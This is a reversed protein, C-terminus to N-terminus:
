SVDSLSPAARVYRGLHCLREDGQLGIILAASPLVGGDFYHVIVTNQFQQERRPLRQGCGDSWWAYDLPVVNHYLENKQRRFASREKKKKSYIAPFM